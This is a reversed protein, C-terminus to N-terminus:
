QDKKEKKTTLIEEMYWIAFCKEKRHDEGIFLIIDNL